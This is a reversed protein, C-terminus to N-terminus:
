AADKPQQELKWLYEELKATARDFRVEAREKELSRELVNYQLSRLESGEDKTLPV